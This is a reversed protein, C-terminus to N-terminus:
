AARRPRDSLSEPDGERCPDSCAPAAGGPHRTGARAAAARDACDPGGPCTFCATPSGTLGPRGSGAAPHASRDGHRHPLYPALREALPRRSFWPVRSFVLTTGVWLVVTLLGLMRM